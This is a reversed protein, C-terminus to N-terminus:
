KPVCVNFISGWLELKKRQTHETWLILVILSKCCSQTSGKVWFTFVHQSRKGSTQSIQDLEQAEERGFESWPLPAAGM